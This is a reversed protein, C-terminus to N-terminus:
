ITSSRKDSMLSAVGFVDLEYTALRLRIVYSFAVTYAIVCHASFMFWSMQWPHM